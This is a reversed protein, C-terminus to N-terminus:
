EKGAEARLGVRFALEVKARLENRAEDVAAASGGHEGLAQVVGPTGPTGGVAKWYLKELDPYFFVGALVVAALSSAVVIWRGRHSAPASSALDPSAASTVEETAEEALPEEHELDAAIDAIEDIVKIEESKGTVHRGTAGALAYPPAAEEPPSDGLPNSKVLPVAQLSATTAPSAPADGAELDAPVDKLVETTTPGSEWPQDDVVVTEVVPLQSVDAEEEPLIV